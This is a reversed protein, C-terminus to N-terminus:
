EDVRNDDHSLADAVIDNNGPFWQSYDRIGLAMYNKTHMRAVKLRVTAQIPNDGLESFNTKKLWGELTTSDTMSLTCDGPKLRNAIIDIWPTIIAALHELLNNIARFQLGAPIYYHWAFGSDSYGRMGAPCSDSHYIHTPQCVIANMSIGKHAMTIINIMSRLNNAFEAMLLIKWRHRARFQLEQLCSLFHYITLLALGLHGLCGIISELEKATTNSTELTSNIIKTWVVFKNTPLSVILQRTDLKWELVIEEEELRAKASLKNRAEMDERPIPKHPHKPRSCCDIALLIAPKCWFSSNTNDLHVTAQIFDDIYIDSTGRPKIPIHVVQELGAAFPVTNDLLHLPPVLHQCKAHLTAPDWYNNHPITDVLDRISESFM